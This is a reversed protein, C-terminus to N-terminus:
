AQVPRPKSRACSRSCFRGRGRGTASPPILFRTNCRECFREEARAYRGNTRLISLEGDAIRRRNRRINCSQCSPALNEQSNNHPNWDLHDVVLLDHLGKQLPQWQVHSQCWHCLHPGPGIRDYLIMRAELLYGKRALPHTPNWVMRRAKPNELRPPGKRGPNPHTARWKKAAYDHACQRCKRWGRKTIILNAEAYSHGHPCTTRQSQSNM